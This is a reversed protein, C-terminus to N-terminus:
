EIPATEAIFLEYDAATMAMQILINPDRSAFIQMDRQCDFGTYDSEGRYYVYIDNTLRCLTLWPQEDNEGEHIWYYHAINDPFTGIDELPQGPMPHCERSYYERPNVLFSFPYELHKADPSVQQRLGERSMQLFKYSSSQTAFLAAYNCWHM